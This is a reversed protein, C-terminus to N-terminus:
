DRRENKVEFSFTKIEKKEKKKKLSAEHLIREIERDTQDFFDAPWDIVSGYKNVEVTKFDSVGNKKNIFFMSVYEKIKEESEQAIRLRLRNILYESHTEIICQRNSSAIAIFLDCLRSQVQPHLHLEPQEFILIDDEVSLLFMLVIPLVQSVGVGVHTLDQWKEGKNIKVTLEYGLKGKDSTQFDQIVGLYSLWELCAFKLSHRKLSLVLNDNILTPSLYTINKDRNKHLVAATYEGKLGVTNPDVHGQSSYLAQPEMRLPGLYKVSRSFYMNLAHYADMFIQTNYMTDRSEPPMANCWVEQLVVRNRSILDILTKRTKEDFRSTFLRWDSLSIGEEVLLTEPFDDVSLNFTAKVVDDKLSSIFESENAYLMNLMNEHFSQSYKEPIIISDYIGQREKKIIKRIEIIFKKPIILYEPEIDSIYGRTNNGVQTNTIHDLINASIKKIYNFRLAIRHPLLEGRYTGLIEFDPYEIAMRKIESSTFGRVSYPWADGLVSNEKDYVVEILNNEILRGEDDLVDVSVKNSLILPHYEDESGRLKGSDLGICLECKFVKGGRRGEGIENKIPLTFSVLVKNDESFHNKIDQFAGLQVLHGNLTISDNQYRNSFSQCILLIVQILSSKGSSNSGCLISFKNLDISDKMRISKFNRIYLETLM